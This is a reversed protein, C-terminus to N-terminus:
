TGRPGFARGGRLGERNLKPGAGFARVTVDWRATDMAVEEARELTAAQVRFTDSAELEVRVEFHKITDNKERSQM